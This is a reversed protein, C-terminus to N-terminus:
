CEDATMNGYFRFAGSKNLISVNTCILSFKPKM